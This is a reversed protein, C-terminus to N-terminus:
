RRHWSGRAAVRDGSPLGLTQGARPLAHFIHCIEILITACALAVLWTWNGDMLSRVDIGESTVNAIGTILLFSLFTYRM